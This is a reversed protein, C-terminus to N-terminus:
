GLSLVVSRCGNTSNGLRFGSTLHQSLLSRMVDATANSPFSVSHDVLLSKIFTKKAYEHSRLIGDVFCPSVNKLDVLASNESDIDMSHNAGPGTVDSDHSFSAGETNDNM